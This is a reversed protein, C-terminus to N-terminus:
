SITLNRKSIKYLRNNTHVRRNYGKIQKHLISLQITDLNYCHTREIQSRPWQLLEHMNFVKRLYEDKIEYNVIKVRKSIKRIKQKLNLSINIKECTEGCCVGGVRCTTAIRAIRAEPQRVRCTIGERAQVVLEGTIMVVVVQCCQQGVVRQIQASHIVDVGHM